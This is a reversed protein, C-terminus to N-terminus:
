GTTTGRTPVHTSISPVAWTSDRIFTTGRTPVHTSIEAGAPFVGVRQTTGRTPVHTSICTGIADARAGYTTGRTPVHTSITIDQVREARVDDDGAHPRPNFNARGARPTPPARRGGRPSTPQFVKVTSLPLESSTTGRTPVHTSILLLISYAFFLYDDGAHPRPNFDTERREQCHVGPRGGRPSTPQFGIHSRAHAERAHRGGRPSTPQFGIHSRAHAERAHRGGRPSTPQFLCNLRWKRRPRTTGRTPVHTSIGGTPEEPGVHM